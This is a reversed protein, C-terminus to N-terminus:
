GGIGGGVGLYPFIMYHYAFDVQWADSFTLLGSLSARHHTLDEFQRAHITTCLAILVFIITALRKMVSNKQLPICKKAQAM